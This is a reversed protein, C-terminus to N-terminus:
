QDALSCCMGTSYLLLVYRLGNLSTVATSMFCHGIAVMESIM